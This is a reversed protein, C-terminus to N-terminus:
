CSFGSPELFCCCDRNWYCYKQDSSVKARKSSSSEIGTSRDRKTSSSFFDLVIPVPPPLSVFFSANDMDEAAASGKTTTAPAAVAAQDVRAQDLIEQRTNEPLSM